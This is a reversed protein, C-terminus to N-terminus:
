HAEEFFSAEVVTHGHDDLPECYVIGQPGDLDLCCRSKRVGRLAARSREVYELWTDPRRSDPVPDIHFKYDARQSQYVATGTRIHPFGELISPLCIIANPHPADGRDCWIEGVKYRRARTQFWEHSKMCCKTSNKGELMEEARHFVDSLAEPHKVTKPTFRYKFEGFQWQANGAM